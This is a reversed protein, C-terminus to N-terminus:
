CVQIHAPRIYQMKRLSEVIYDSCGLEDFSKRSFFDNSAKLKLGKKSLDIDDRRYRSYSDVGEVGGWKKSDSSSVARRVSKARSRFAETTDKRDDMFEEEDLFDNDNYSKDSTRSRSNEGKQQYEDFSSSDQKKKRYSEKVLDNVKQM